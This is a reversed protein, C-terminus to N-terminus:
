WRVLRIPAGKGKNNDRRVKPRREVGRAMGRAILGKGFIVKQGKGGRNPGLVDKKGARPSEPL